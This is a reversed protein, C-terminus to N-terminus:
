FNVKRTASDATKTSSQSHRDIEKSVMGLDRNDPKSEKNTKFAGSQIRNSKQTKSFINRSGTASPRRVPPKTAPGLPAHLGIQQVLNKNLLSLKKQSEQEMKRYLRQFDDAKKSTNLIPGDFGLVSHSSRNASVGRRIRFSVENSKARKIENKPVNNIRSGFKTFKLKIVCDVLDKLCSTFSIPSSIQQEQTLLM